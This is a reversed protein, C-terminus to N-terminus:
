KKEGKNLINLLPKIREVPMDSYYCEDYDWNVNKIKKGLIDKEILKIAEKRINELQEAKNHEVIFAKITNSDNTLYKLKENEKELQEVKQQLNTIYNLLAKVELYDLMAPTTLRNGKIIAKEDSKYKDIYNQLYLIEKIKESM